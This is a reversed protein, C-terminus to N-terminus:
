DVAFVIYAGLALGFRKRLKNHNHCRDHELGHKTIKASRVEFPQCSKIPYIFVRQVSFSQKSDMSEENDSALSGPTSPSPGPTAAAM